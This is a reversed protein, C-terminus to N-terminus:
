LRNELRDVREELREIEADIRGKFRNVEAESKTDLAAFETVIADRKTQVDKLGAEVEARLQPKATEAKVRAEDIKNNLTDIREQGWTRLSDDAAIVNRNAERIKENANAQAEASKERAEQQAEQVKENGEAVTKDYDKRAAATDENVDKRIEATKESAERNAEQIDRNAENQAEIASKQEEAPTRNCGAAAGGLLAVIILLSRTKDM